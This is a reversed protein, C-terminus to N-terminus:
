PFVFLSVFLKDQTVGLICVARFSLLIL